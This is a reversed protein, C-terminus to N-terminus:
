WNKPKIINEPAGRFLMAMSEESYSAIGCGVKTLLFVKDPNQRAVKWLKRASMVLQENNRQELKKGLTPFAYCQGTLGEGVGDEAGFHEKAYRAAGGAHHGALNSGFVFYQNPELTTINDPTNMTM